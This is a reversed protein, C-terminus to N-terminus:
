EMPAGNSPFPCFIIIIMMTMKMVHNCSFGSPQPADTADAAPGKVVLFFVKTSVNQASHDKPVVCWHKISDKKTITYFEFHKAFFNFLSSTNQQTQLIETSSQDTNIYKVNYQM